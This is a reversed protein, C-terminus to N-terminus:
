VRKGTDDKLKQNTFIINDLNLQLCSYGVAKCLCILLFNSGTIALCNYRVVYEEPAHSHLCSSPFFYTHQQLCVPM